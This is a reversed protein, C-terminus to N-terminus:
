PVRRLHPYPPAPPRLIQDLQAAKALTDRAKTQPAQFATLIADYFNLLGAGERTQVVWVKQAEGEARTAKLDTLAFREAIMSKGNAYPGLLMLGNTRLSPPRVLLDELMAHAARAPPTGIWRASRIFAIREDVPRALWPRVNDFLHDGTM